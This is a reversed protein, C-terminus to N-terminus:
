MYVKTLKLHRSSFYTVPFILCCANAKGLVAGEILYYYNNNIDINFEM